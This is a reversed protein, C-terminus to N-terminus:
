NAFANLLFHLVMPIYKFETLSFHENVVNGLGCYKKRSVAFM